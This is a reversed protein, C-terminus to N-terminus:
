LRWIGHPKPLAALLERATRKLAPHVWDPAIDCLPALVFARVHLRPHPLQLIPGEAEMAGGLCIDNYALLDLDLTRAANAGGRIRGFLAEIDLLKGLLAAPPLGTEVRVAGNVFDPQSSAPVAHAGYWPSARAVRVGQRGLMELAHPLGKEPPGFHSPLNGGVGILIM